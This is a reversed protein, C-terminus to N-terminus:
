DEYADPLIKGPALVTQKWHDMMFFSGLEYLLSFRGIDQSAKIIRRRREEAKRLARRTKWSLRKKKSQAMATLPQQHEYGNSQIRRFFNFRGRTRVSTTSGESALAPEQVSGAASMPHPEAEASNSIRQEDVQCDNPVAWGESTPSCHDKVKSHYTELGQEKYSGLKQSLNNELHPQLQQQDPPTPLMEREEAKLQERELELEEPYPYPHPHPCSHVTDFLPRALLPTLCLWWRIIAMIAMMTFTLIIRLASQEERLVGVTAITPRKMDSVHRQYNMAVPDKYRHTKFGLFGKFLHAAEM